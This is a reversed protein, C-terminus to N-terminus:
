DAPADGAGDPEYNARAFALAIVRGAGHDKLVLACENATAGTTLVDDLIAVTVGNLEPGEYAFAGRVNRLREEGRLGVQSETERIRRLRGEAVPWELHRMLEEAQNFGRGRLRKSHLPVAFMVDWEQETMVPQMEAAMDRAAARVGRYKLAGILRRAKGKMEVAATAGDLGDWFECRPCNLPGDWAGACLPCRQDVKLPVLQRRCPECFTRHEFSGCTVCRVPFLEDRIKRLGPM